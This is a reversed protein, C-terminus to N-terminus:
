VTYIFLYIYDEIHINDSNVKMLGWCKYEKDDFDANSDWKLNQEIYRNRINPKYRLKKTSKQLNNVNRYTIEMVSCICIRSISELSASELSHLNKRLAKMKRESTDGSNGFRLVVFDNRKFNQPLM